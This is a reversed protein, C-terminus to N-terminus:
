LCWAQKNPALTPVVRPANPLEFPIAFLGQNCLCVVFLVSVSVPSTRTSVFFTTNEFRPCASVEFQLPPPASIGSWPKACSPLHPPEAPAIMVAAAADDDDDDDAGLALGRQGLFRPAHELQDLSRRSGASPLPMDQRRGTRSQQSTQLSAPTEVHVQARAGVVPTSRDPVNMRNTWAM